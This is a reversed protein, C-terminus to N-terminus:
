IGIRYRQYNGIYGREYKRNKSTQPRNTPTLNLTAFKLVSPAATKPPKHANSHAHCGASLFKHQMLLEPIQMGFGLVRPRRTESIEANMRVYLCFSPRVHSSRIYFLSYVYIHQMIIIKRCRLLAALKPKVCALNYVCSGADNRRKETSIVSGCEAVPVSGQRGALVASRFRCCASLWDCRV